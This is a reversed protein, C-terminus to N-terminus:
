QKNINKKKIIPCGGIIEHSSVRNGLVVSKWGKQVQTSPPLLHVLTRRALPGKPGRQKRDDKCHDQCRSVCVEAQEGAQGDGGGDGGGDHRHAHQPQEAAAGDKFVVLDSSCVDSSWDSIRM